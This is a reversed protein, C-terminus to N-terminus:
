HTNLLEVFKNVDKAAEANKQPKGAHAPPVSETVVTLAVRDAILAKIAADNAAGACEQLFLETVLQTPLKAELCLKRAKDKNAMYVERAKVADLALTYKEDLSDVSKQVSEILVLEEQKHKVSEEVPEEPPKEEPKEGGMDPLIKLGALVRKRKENADLDKNKIIELILHGIKHELSQEPPKEAAEHEPSPAPTAKDAKEIKEDTKSDGGNARPDPPTEDEKTKKVVPPTDAMNRSEFLSKTTAPDAVLDVSRVKVIKEVIFKGNDDRGQGVANHSLGLSKPRHKAWWLTTKAWPHEPNFCLDGYPYRKGDAAEKMHVNALWGFRDQYERSKHPDSPHNINVNVDEYLPLAGNMAEMTYYRDNQSTDGLIKCDKLMPIGGVDAISSEGLDLMQTELIEREVLAM